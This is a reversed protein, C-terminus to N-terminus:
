LYAFVLALLAAVATIVLAIVFATKIVQSEIGVADITAAANQLKAPSIVSALGGGIATAATVVLANVNLLKSTLLHYKTFMAITSAESGSVFGGFLGLFSSIFPYLVGFVIASGQALVWIMNSDPNTIKWAPGMDQMGSNNMVFAIAFFVMAALAPRPARKTWKTLTYKLDAAKPKIFIVSAVTSILVWSYANWIMRTKIIQGPIISVPMALVGFFLKFLPQYFNIILLAGILILWPSLAVPLSIEKEVKLDEATLKSRDIIPKGLLRLYLLMVVITCFGAVVGTLVVGSSLFPIYSMAVAIGGNTVGALICPVLGEKILKWRGVIWLMGFGILTSIIPLFKAFVQAAQVLSTGTLDSYVVLPAGLLAFTCLADFGLAPLAVAVFTSYGLAVMLPPFISVPTAGISVLLTGAGVNILMIQVAQDTAALSKVFVVIRRLAGTAEMFTIQLISTIVMLSVPFSSVLGALSSRLTVSLSTEFFIISILVTTLWGATGSIDAAVSKKAMLFVIVAIPLLALAISFGM